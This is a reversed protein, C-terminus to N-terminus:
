GVKVVDYPTTPTPPTSFRANIAYLKFGIRAVTTPIDFDPDTLERILVGRKLRRDLLLAAIKNDQNQVVFLLPGVLLIGDGNVVPPADILRAFGTRADVAFLNGTTSNVVILTRGDPTAAIGNANFEDPIQEWEGGLPLTSPAGGDRPLVYLDPNQSDTFYAARHTVIVDNVFGEEPPVFAHQAVDGGTRADYVYGTGFPGGAVYLKGGALKLGYAGREGPRGPVLIAGRGTRADARYVSGNARSGVYLTTGKGSAIGEPQSGQPVPFTEPFSPATALAASALLTAALM